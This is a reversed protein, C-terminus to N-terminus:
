KALTRYDVLTQVLPAARTASQLYCGDKRNSKMVIGIMEGAKVGIENTRLTVVTGASQGAIKASVEGGPVDTASGDPSVSVLKAYFTDEDKQENFVRFTVSLSATGAVPFVLAGEGGTAASGPIVQVKNNLTIRGYDMPAGVPCNSWADNVTYRLMSYGENDQQFREVGEKYFLRDEIVGTPAHIHTTFPTKADCQLLKIKVTTPNQAAIPYVCVAFQKADSPVVLDGTVTQTGQVNESVFFSSAKTWGASFEPVGNTRGSLIADPAKGSGTWKMMAVEFGNDKVEGVFTTTLTKGRLLYTKEPSMIKHFDFDTVSVDDASTLLVAGNAISAKVDSVATVGWGDAMTYSSKAPGVGEPTDRQTLWSTTIVGSGFYHRTSKLAIGTDLQFQIGGEGTRSKTTSEQILMCTNGETRDELLLPDDFPNDVMVRFYTLAKANVFRDIILRDLKDGAKYTKEVAMPNGNEDALVGLPNRLQDLAQIWLRVSGDAPATGSMAVHAVLNFSSGGTINPDKDDTEQIGYVKDTRDVELYAGGHTIEDDFFLAGSAKPSVELPEDFCAYYSIGRAPLILDVAVNGDQYDDLHIYPSRFLIGTVNDYAQNGTTELHIGKGGGAGPLESVLAVLDPTNTVPPASPSRFNINIANVEDVTKAAEVEADYKWKQTYSDLGTAIIELLLTSLEERSVDHYTNDAARFRVASGTPMSQMQVVLSMVDEWARTNANATFGLSSPVEATTGRYVEYQRRIEGSKAAKVVSLDPAPEAEETYTVGLAAWFEARGDKPEPGFAKNEAAVIAQRVKWASTYTAGNYLYKLIM